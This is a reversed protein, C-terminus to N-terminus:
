GKLLEEWCAAADARDGVSAAGIPVVIQFFKKGDM